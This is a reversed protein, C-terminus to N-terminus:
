YNSDEQSETKYEDFDQRNDPKRGSKQLSTILAGLMKSVEILLERNEEMRAESIYGLRCVITGMVLCERVSGRADKLIQVFHPKSRGSGEAIAVSVDQAANMMRSGIDDGIGNDPFMSITEHVWEIYLLTKEYIRLDEFRFFSNNVSVNGHNFSREEEMNTNELYTIDKFIPIAVRM